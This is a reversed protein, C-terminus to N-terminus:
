MAAEADERPDHGKAGHCQIDQGLFLHSLLKLKAKRRRDGSINYIVSTDIVYPHLMELAKLDNGLSHGVWIADNPLLEILANQVDCLKTTVDQLMKPTIGSYRTLYNVIPNDPKVFSEYIPKLNSDIVCIKTLEHKNATTLCMECDISFIPSNETVEKYEDHSAVYNKYKEKMPGELPLPYHEEIMQCVNLLLNLKINENEIKKDEIEEKVDKNTDKEVSDDLEKNQLKKIKFLSRFMKYAEGQAYAKSLRGYKKSYEVQLRKSMPLISLDDALNSNYAIPPVFELQSPFISRISSLDEKIIDESGIGDIVM